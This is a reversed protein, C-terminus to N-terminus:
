VSTIGQIKLLAEFKNEGQTERQLTTLRGTEENAHDLM